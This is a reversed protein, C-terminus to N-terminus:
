HIVQKWNNLPLSSGPRDSQNEQVCGTDLPLRLRLDERLFFMNSQEGAATCKSTALPLCHRHICKRGCIYECPIIQDFRTAGFLDFDCVNCKYDNSESEM